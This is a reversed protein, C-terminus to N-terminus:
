DISSTADIRLKPPTSNFTQTPLIVEGDSYFGWGGVNYLDTFNDNTKDFSDRLPDGTGDNPSSGINIIQKAM